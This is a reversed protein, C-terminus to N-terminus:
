SRLQPVWRVNERGPVYELAATLEASSKGEVPDM